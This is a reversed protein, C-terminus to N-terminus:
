TDGAYARWAAGYAPACALQPTVIVLVWRGDPHAWVAVSEGTTATGSGTPVFGAEALAALATDRPQCPVSQAAAPSAFALAAIIAARIM